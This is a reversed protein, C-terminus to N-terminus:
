RNRSVGKWHPNLAANFSDLAVETCNCISYDCFGQTFDKLLIFRLKLWEFINAFSLRFEFSPFLNYNEKYKGRRIMLFQVLIISTLRVSSM